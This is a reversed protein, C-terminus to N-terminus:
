GYVACWYPVGGKSVAQGLGVAGYYPNLINRRHPRSGMWLDVTEDPTTTAVAINEAASSRWGAKRLRTEFDPGDLGEEHTCLNARAMWGAHGQALRQLTADPRLEDLGEAARRVNHAALLTTRDDMGEGDGPDPKARPRPSRKAGLIQLISELWGVPM